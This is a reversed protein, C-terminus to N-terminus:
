SDEHQLFFAKDSPIRSVNTLIKIGVSATNLERMESLTAYRLFVLPWDSGKTTSQTLSTTGNENSFRIGDGRVKSLIVM